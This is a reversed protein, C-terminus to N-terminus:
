QGSFKTRINKSIYVQEIRYKKFFYEPASQFKNYIDKYKGVPFKFCSTNGIGSGIQTWNEIM